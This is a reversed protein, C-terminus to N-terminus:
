YYFTFNVERPQEGVLLRLADPLPDFPASELVAKQCFLALIEGATSDAVRMGQVTGDDYLEFHLTVVGSREHLGYRRILAYWRSQVASVIRKDYEGFPSAAVNFAAIGTRAVGSAQLRSKVAAIERGAPDPAVPVAVPEPPHTVAPEPEPPARLPSPQPTVLALATQEVIRLGTEALDAAPETAPPEALAEAPLEPVPEPPPAVPEPPRPPSAVSPEPVNETSMVPSDRGDLYPTDGILPAPHEPNAAVTARDSYYPTDAPQEGSVQRDDTEMFIHPRVPEPEAPDELEIFTLSAMQLEPPPMPRDPSLLRALQSLVPWGALTDRTQWAAAAALHLALSLALALELRSHYRVDTM